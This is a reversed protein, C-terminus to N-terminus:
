RANKRSTFGFLTNLSAKVSMRPIQARRGRGTKSSPKEKKQVKESEKSRERASMEAYGKLKWDPAEGRFVGYIKLYDAEESGDNEEVGIKDWGKQFYYEVPKDWDPARLKLPALSAPGTFVFGARRNQSETPDSPLSILIRPRAPAPEPEPELIPPPHPPSSPLCPLPKNLLTSPPPSIGATDACEIYPDSNNRSREWITTVESHPISWSIPIIRRDQNKVRTQEEVDTDAVSITSLMSSYDSAASFVDSIM